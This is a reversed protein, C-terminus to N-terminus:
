TNVEMKAYNDRLSTAMLQAQVARIDDDVFNQLQEELERQLLLMGDLERKKTQNAIHMADIATQLRESEELELNYRRPWDANRLSNLVTLLNSHQKRLQMLEREEDNGLTLELQLLEQKQAEITQRQSELLKELQENSLSGDILSSDVCDMAVVTGDQSARRQRLVNMISKSQNRSLSNCRQEIVENYTPPSPRTPPRSTRRLMPFSMTHPLSGQQQQVSPLGTYSSSSSAPLEAYNATAYNSMKEAENKALSSQVHRLELRVDRGKEQCSQVFALPSDCPSFRHQDASGSVIAVLVFRGKQNTAHALAYVIQACTTNVDVGSVNHATGNTHVTLDATENPPM